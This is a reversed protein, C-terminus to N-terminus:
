RRRKMAENFVKMLDATVSPNGENASILRNWEGSNGDEDFSKVLADRDFVAPSERGGMTDVSRRGRDPTGAAKGITKLNQLIKERASKAITKDREKDWGQAKSYANYLLEPGLKQITDVSMGKEKCFTIIGHMPHKEDIGRFDTDDSNLRSDLKSLKAFVANLNEENKRVM